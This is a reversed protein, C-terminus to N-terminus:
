AEETISSINLSENDICGKGQANYSCKDSQVINLIGSLINNIVGLSHKILIENNEEIKKIEKGLKRLAEKETDTFSNPTNELDFKKIKETVIITAEDLNNIEELNKKIIADKKKSVIEKLESYAGYVETYEM